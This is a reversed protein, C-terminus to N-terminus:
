RTSAISGSRARARRRQTLSSRFAVDQNWVVFLCLLHRSHVTRRPQQRAGQCGAFKRDRVCASQLKVTARLKQLWEFLLMGGAQPGHSTAYRAKWVFESVPQLVDLMAKNSLGLKAGPSYTSNVAQYCVLNGWVQMGEARHSTIQSETEGILLQPPVCRSSSSLCVPPNRLFHSSFDLFFAPARYSRFRSPLSNATWPCQSTRLEREGHCAPLRVAMTFNPSDNLFDNLISM